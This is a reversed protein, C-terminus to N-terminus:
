PQRRMRDLHTHERIDITQWTVALSPKHSGGLVEKMRGYV